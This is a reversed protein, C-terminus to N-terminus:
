LSQRRFLDITEAQKQEFFKMSFYIGANICSFMKIHNNSLKNFFNFWDKKQSCVPMLDPRFIGKVIYKCYSKYNDSDDTRMFKSLNSFGKTEESVIECYKQFLYPDVIAIDLDSVGQLFDTSKFYSYGTKSSGVVQVSTIPIQFFESISNLIEFEVELIESFAFTPFTIFIKRGIVENRYGNKIGLRIADEYM